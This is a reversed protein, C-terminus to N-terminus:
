TQLAESFEHDENEETARTIMDFDLESETDSDDEDTTYGIDTTDTGNNKMGSATNGGFQSSSAEQDTPYSEKLPSPPPTGASEKDTERADPRALTKWPSTFGGLYASHVLVSRSLYQICKLTHNVVQGPPCWGSSPSFSCLLLVQEIISRVPTADHFEEKFAAVFFHHIFALTEEWFGVWASKAAEGDKTFISLIREVFEKCM